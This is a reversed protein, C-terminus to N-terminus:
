AWTAGCQNCIRMGGGISTAESGCKPCAPRRQLADHPTVRVPADLFQPPQNDTKNSRWYYMYMVDNVYHETKVRGTARLGRAWREDEGHGGSMKMLQALERRIPNLHSIDRYYGVDDANWEPYRLSHFTPKQKQGDSFMQLTFGIYDVGDLLPYITSVYNAPVLDDDDIFNVYIGAASDIMIQRNAGLDLGSEFNRIYVGVDPCEELQPKLVAELRHLFDRRSPQTLVLISWKESM